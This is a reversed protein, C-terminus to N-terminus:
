MWIVSLQIQPKDLLRPLGSPPPPALILPKATPLKGILEYLVPVDTRTSLEKYEGPSAYDRCSSKCCCLCAISHIDEAEQEATDTANYM